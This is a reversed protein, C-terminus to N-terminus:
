VPTTFLITHRLYDIFRDANENSYDNINVPLQKDAQNIKFPTNVYVMPINRENLADRFEVTNQAIGEMNYEDIVYTLHGNDLLYRENVVRAGMIKQYAGNLTIFFYKGKFNENYKEEVIFFDLKGTNTFEKAAHALGVCVEPIGQWFMVSLLALFCFLTLYKTRFIKKM